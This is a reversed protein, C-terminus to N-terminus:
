TLDLSLDKMLHTHQGKLPNICFIFHFESDIRDTFCKLIM